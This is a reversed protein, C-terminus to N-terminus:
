FPIEDDIKKDFSQKPRPPPLKKKQAPAPLSPKQPQEERAKYLLAVIDGFWGRLNELRGVVADGDEALEIALNGLSESRAWDTNVEKSLAAIRSYLADRKRQTLCPEKEVTEQMQDLLRRLKTKTEPNFSIVSLKSRDSNRLALATCVTTIHIRFMRFVSSVESSEPHPLEWQGIDVNYHGALAIVTGIYEVENDWTESNRVLNNRAARELHVFAAEPDPPASALDDDELLV